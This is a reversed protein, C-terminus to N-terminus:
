MVCHHPVFMEGLALAQTLRRYISHLSEGAQHAVVIRSALTGLDLLVYLSDAVLCNSALVPSLIKKWLQGATLPNQQGFISLYRENTIPTNEAKTVVQLFLDSLEDTSFDRFRLATGDYVLQKLVWSIAYAIAIDAKACEQIDLVRIEIASRDFRAIAGRSNLWEFQLIGEPDYPEIDRYIKKLIKDHYEQMSGIPEPIVKGTISPVRRQNHRYVELRSDKTKQVKNDLIPSSASLAPMIPLLLRIAAHLKAFEEDGSFPLNVHTSQLNAWGHGRCDFIKNYKDYIVNAEHTWLKMQQYPNMWPHAATPLLTSGFHLLTNNISSIHEQFSTELGLLESEPKSTKLEVVHLALENSYSIKGFNIESDYRGVFSHILKDCIPQVDLSQKDVIMYELEIGFGEFLHLVFLGM